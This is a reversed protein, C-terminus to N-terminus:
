YKLFLYGLEHAREPLLPRPTGIGYGTRTLAWGYLLVCMVPRVSAVEAYSAGSPM